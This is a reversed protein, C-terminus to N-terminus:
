KMSLIVEGDSPHPVDSDNTINSSSSRSINMHFQFKVRLTHNTISLFLENVNLLVMSIIM